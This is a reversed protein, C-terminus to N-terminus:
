NNNVQEAVDTPAQEDSVGESTGENVADSVADNVADAIDTPAQENVPKVGLKQMNMAVKMKTQVEDVAKLKEIEAFIDVEKGAKPRDIMYGLVKRPQLTFHWQDANEPFPLVELMKPSQNPQEGYYPNPKVICKIPLMVMCIEGVPADTGMPKDEYVPLQAFFKKKEIPASKKREIVKKSM